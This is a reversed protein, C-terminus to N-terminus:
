TLAIILSIYLVQIQWVSSTLFYTGSDIKVYIAIKQMRCYILEEINAASILSIGIGGMIEVDFEVILSPTLTVTPSKRQNQM